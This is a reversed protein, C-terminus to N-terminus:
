GNPNCNIRVWEPPFLDDTNTSNAFWVSPYSIIKNICNSKFGIYAGWWSFSSNAIIHNGCESMLLMQEWDEFVNPVKIFQLSTYRTKCKYITAEVTQIDEEECFYIVTKIPTKEMIYQLSNIYYDSSMIPHIHTLKKFDGLRFHMSVSNSLDTKTISVRGDLSELKKLVEQKLKDIKLLHYITDYYRDFYKYSQFYGHICVNKTQLLNTLQLDNYRFNPERVLVIEPFWNILVPRLGRFISSWFTYRLTCGGGLTLTHLFRYEVMEKLAYSITTFIQFLQNGLGGMLNCTIMM